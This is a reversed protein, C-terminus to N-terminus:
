EPQNVVQAAAPDAGPPRLQVSLLGSHALLGFDGSMVARSVSDPTYGGDILTRMTQAQVSAIEAADKSDERLFPVDRTDYWLRAGPPAPRIRELSGAVNAWLPHLTGDAFRRRAQGYNSYTASELGKSLGVIIPPVGAAAAIRTEGHSQTVQFDIQRFDSGVVTADAGGGVHMVKYANDVGSYEEDLASKFERAQKPTVTPAHKIILNPTAGNEFFKQKHRIMLDDATVERMLPTLWSMGRYTALPDPIPAFHAVDRVTLPVPETSERRGGEYYLYGIRRAGLVQLDGNPARGAIRSELVIDVWDPRLRVLEGSHVTWYSNGALDADVMQRALLDGTTGGEWPKELLGLDGNGFLESPRGANFRQWQFRVSSFVAQRALMCAFVVSNSGYVQGALGRFDGTIREAPEGALTQQVGGGALGYTQGQFQLLQVAGLYDGVTSISRSGPGALARRLLSTM